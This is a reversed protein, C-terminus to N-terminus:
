LRRVFSSLHRALCCCITDNSVCRKDGGGGRGTHTAGHRVDQGGAKHGGTHAGLGRGDHCEGVLHCVYQAQHQGYSQSKGEVAVNCPLQSVLMPVTAPSRKMLM